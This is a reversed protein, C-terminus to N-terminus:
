LNSSMDWTSLQVGIPACSQTAENYESLSLTSCGYPKGYELILKKLPQSTYSTSQNIVKGLNIGVNQQGSQNITANNASNSVQLPLLDRLVKAAHLIAKDEDANLQDLNKALLHKWDSPEQEFGELITQAKQNGAFRNRIATKLLDFAQKVEERAVTAGILSSASQLVELIFQTSDNV